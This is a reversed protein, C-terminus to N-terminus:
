KPVFPEFPVYYDYDWTMNSCLLSNSKINASCSLPNKNMLIRQLGVSLSLPLPVLLLLLLLVASTSTTFILNISCIGYNTRM